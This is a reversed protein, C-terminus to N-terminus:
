LAAILGFPRRAHAGKPDLAADTQSWPRFPGLYITVQLRWSWHDDHLFLRTVRAESGEKLSTKMRVILRDLRAEDWELLVFRLLFGPGVKMPLPYGEFNYLILDLPEYAEVPVYHTLFHRDSGVALLELAQGEKWDKIPITLRRASRLPTNRGSSLGSVLHDALIPEASAGRGHRPQPTSQGSLTEFLANLQRDIHSQFQEAM